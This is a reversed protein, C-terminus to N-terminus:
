GRYLLVGAIAAGAIIVPEPLKFARLGALSAAAIVITTLDVISGEALIIAAGAIAGSAAATAGKVFGKLTPHDRYRVIYRGIFLVFLYVPLFVAAAAIISGLLGAVLYGVFAATIVVPGPTIVGVAVADLFQRETLWRYELVVGQHLFPVIALGSGFTFAGAKVFFAGLQGLRSGTMQVASAALFIISQTPPHQHRKWFPAYMLIGIIGAVVFLLAVETRSFFTIAGIVGFIIWLRVDREVTARALRFASIAIIAIVAPGIGYFLAQVVALGNYKVYFAAIVVVILYPPLIFVIGVLSAGIVGYRIFGIWMALQAALPGPMMQAFALGEKYEENTMWGRPVLDRQMYGALAIPGGFGFSGLRLFYRVLEWLGVSQLNPNGENQSRSEM